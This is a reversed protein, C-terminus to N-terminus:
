RAVTGSSLVGSRAGSSQTPPTQAGTPTTVIGTGASPTTTPQAGTPTTVIGTGAGAKPKTHGPIGQYCVTPNPCVYIPGGGEPPWCTWGRSQGPVIIPNEICAYGKAMLSVMDTLVPPPDDAVAHAPRAATLATPVAITVALILGALTKTITGKRM